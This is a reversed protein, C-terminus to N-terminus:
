YKLDRELFEMGTKFLESETMAHGTKQIVKGNSFYIKQESEDKLKDDTWFTKFAEAYILKQEKYYFTLVLSTDTSENHRIRLLEKTKPDFLNYTDFGGTQGDYQIIGESIGEVLTEDADIKVIYKKTEAIRDDIVQKDTQGCSVM